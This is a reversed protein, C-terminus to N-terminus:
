ETLLSNHLGQASDTYRHNSSMPCIHRVHVRYIHTNVCYSSNVRKREKERSGEKRERREKRAFIYSWGRGGGRGKEGRM